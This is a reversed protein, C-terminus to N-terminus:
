NQTVFVNHILILDKSTKFSTFLLDRLQAQLSKCYLRYRQLRTVQAGDASTAGGLITHCEM